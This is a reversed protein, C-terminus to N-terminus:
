LLRDAYAGLRAATKTLGVGELTALFEEVSKPPNKLGLRQLRAAECFEDVAADFLESFLEDPHRVDVGCPALIQPPFDALNFTVILGADGHIAAALVHRDNPDPLTLSPVLAAYGAVICDRVARDM